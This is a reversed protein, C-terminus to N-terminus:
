KRAPPRARQLGLSKVSVSKSDEISPVKPRVWKTDGPKLVLMGLVKGEEDHRVHVLTTDRLAAEPKYCNAEPQTTFNVYYVAVVDKAAAYQEECKDVHGCVTNPYRGGADRKGREGDVLHASLELVIRKGMVREGEALDVVVFDPKGTTGDKSLTFTVEHNVSAKAGAWQGLLLGLPLQYCVEHPVPNETAGIGGADKTRGVMYAERVLVRGLIQLIGIGDLYGRHRPLPKAVYHRFDVPLVKKILIQRMLPSAVEFTNSVGTARLAGV